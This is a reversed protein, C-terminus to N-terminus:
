GVQPLCPQNAPHIIVTALSEEGEARCYVPIHEPSRSFTPIMLLCATWEGQVPVGLQSCHGGRRGEPSYYQCYRCAQLSANLNEM